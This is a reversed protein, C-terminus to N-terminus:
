SAISIESRVINAMKIEKILFKIFFIMGIAVAGLLLPIPQFRLTVLHIIAYELIIAVTVGVIATITKALGIILLRYDFYFSSFM